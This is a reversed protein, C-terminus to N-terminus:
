PGDRRVGVLAVRTGAPWARPRQRPWGRVVKVVVVFGPRVDTTTVDETAGNPGRLRLIARWPVPQPGTLRLLDETEALDADLVWSPPRSM